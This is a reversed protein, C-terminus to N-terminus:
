QMNKIAYKQMNKSIEHMNEIAYNAYKHMKGEAHKKMYKDIKQMNKIAYKPM